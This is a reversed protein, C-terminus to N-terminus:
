IHLIADVLIRIGLALGGLGAIWATLKHDQAAYWNIKQKIAGFIFVIGLIIFFIGTGIM